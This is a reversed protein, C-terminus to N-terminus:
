FVTILINNKDTIRNIKYEQELLVLTPNIISSLLIPNSSILEIVSARDRLERLDCLHNFLIMFDNVKKSQIFKNIDNIITEKEAMINM